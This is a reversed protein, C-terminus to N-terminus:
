ACRVSSRDLPWQAYLRSSLPCFWMMDSAKSRPADVIQLMLTIGDAAGNRELRMTLAVFVHRRRDVDDLTQNNPFLRAVARVGDQL